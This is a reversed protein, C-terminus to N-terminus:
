LGGRPEDNVNPSSLAAIIARLNGADRHGDIGSGPIAAQQRATLLGDAAEAYRRLFSRQNELRRRAEHVVFASAEEAYQRHGAELIDLSKLLDDFGGLLAGYGVSPNGQTKPLDTTPTDM